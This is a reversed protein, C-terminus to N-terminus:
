YYKRINLNYAKITGFVGNLKKEITLMAVEGKAGSLIMTHKLKQM